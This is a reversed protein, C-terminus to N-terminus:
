RDIYLHLSQKDEDKEEKVYKKKKFNEGRGRAEWEGKKERSKQIRVMKMGGRCLM